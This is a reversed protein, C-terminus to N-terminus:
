GAQSPIDAMRRKFDDWNKRDIADGDIAAPSERPGYRGLVSSGIMAGGVGAVTMAKISFVILWFGVRIAFYIFAGAAIVLALPWFLVLLIMWLLFAIMPEGEAHVPGAQRTPEATTRRSALPHLCEPVLPCLREQTRARNGRGPRDRSEAQPSSRPPPTARDEQAPTAAEAHPVRGNQKMYRVQRDDTTMPRATM